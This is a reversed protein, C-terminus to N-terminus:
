SFEGRAYKYLYDYGIVDANKDKYNQAFKCAAQHYRIVPFYKGCKRCYGLGEIARKINGDYGHFWHWVVM